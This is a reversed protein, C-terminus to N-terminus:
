KRGCKTKTALDKLERANALVAETVDLGGLLRALERHIEEEGIQQIETVSRGERSKKQIVFHHDAMAAIQPLHTICILQHSNGLMGLKEAVKWATQGSIGADIEDFILTMIEEKDALVAKLALMIRSLEGGSAVKSISKVPEGPNVSICFDVEDWGQPGISGKPIVKIELEVTLFHLETLAQKLKKELEKAYKRRLTSLKECLGAAEAEKKEKSAKLKELYTDYEELQQLRQLKRERGALIEEVTNGYKDKLRHYLNLREETAAMEEPAFELTEKYESLSRNFDNLLNEVETLQQLLEELASDLLAANKLERVARGLMGAADERGGDGTQGYAAAVAQAIRQSNIMKRYQEELLEDEGIRLGAGSIEEIEYRLLDMERAKEKDDIGSNEWEKKAQTWATYAKSLEEKIKAVPAGGYDDLILSHQRVSLLSQTEHQGHIDIFLSALERLQKANVTEGNIRCQSREPMLRRSVVVMDGEEPPIQLEELAARQAKTEVRFVLEILAFDAGTRILNKDAKGGLAINVSGMIISKGAGTEGTLINLGRGFFVETEDILALNKVHLSELM